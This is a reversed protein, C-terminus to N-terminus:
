RKRSNKVLCELGFFLASAALMGFLFQFWIGLHFMTLVVPEAAADKEDNISTENNVILDSVGSEVLQVIKRSFAKFMFDNTQFHFGWHNSLIKESLKTFKKSEKSYKELFSLYDSDTVFANNSGDVLLDSISSNEPISIVRFFFTILFSLISKRSIGTAM